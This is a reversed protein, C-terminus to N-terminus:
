ILLISTFFLTNQLFKEIHLSNLVLLCIFSPIYKTTQLFLYLCPLDSLNKVIIALIEILISFLLNFIFLYFINDLITRIGKRYENLPAALAWNLM